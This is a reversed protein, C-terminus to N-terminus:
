VQSAEIIRAAAIQFYEPDLEIGIFKRGVQLAAVGTSGSGMTNDLITDGENSYTKILYAMLSAPKQSPHKRNSESNFELVSRPYNSYTMLRTEGRLKNYIRSRGNRRVKNVRVLGQPNYVMKTTKVPSFVLINEHNRLPQFKSNLYGTVNKKKWMLEYRFWEPKSNILKTTFPQSATLVVAGGPKLLREYNEWLLAFPIIHDWECATVGYPLDALILNVTAPKLKPMVELCDGEFLAANNINM